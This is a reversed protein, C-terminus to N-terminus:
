GYVVESCIFAEYDSPTGVDILEAGARYRATAQDFPAAVGCAPDNTLMAEAAKLLAAGRRMYYIGSVADASVVQGEAVGTGSWYGFRPDTSAFTVVGTQAQRQRMVAVFGDLGGRLVCDCYVILLEADPDILKRAAWLSALPGPTGVKLWMSQVGVLWPALPPRDVARGVFAPTADTPLTDRAWAILPRGDPMPLMPKIPYGAHTFRGGNGAALIIAKM